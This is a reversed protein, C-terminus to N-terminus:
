PAVMPVVYPKGPRRELDAGFLSAQTARISAALGDPVPVNLRGAIWSLLLPVLVTEEIAPHYRVRLVPALPSAIVAPETISWEIFGAWPLTKVDDGMAMIAEYRVLSLTEDLYKPAIGLNEWRTLPAPKAGHAWRYIAIGPGLAMLILLICGVILAILPMDIM